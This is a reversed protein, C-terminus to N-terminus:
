PSNALFTFYAAPAAGGAVVVVEAVVVPQREVPCEEIELLQGLSEPGPHGWGDVAAGAAAGPQALTALDVMDLQEETTGVRARRRVTFALGRSPLGPGVDGPLAAALATMAALNRIRSPM